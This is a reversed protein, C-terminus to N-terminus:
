GTHLLIGLNITRSATTDVNIATANVVVPVQLDVGAGDSMSLAYQFHAPSDAAQAPWGGKSGPFFHLSSPMDIAVPTHSYSSYLNDYIQINIIFFDDYSKCPHIGRYM